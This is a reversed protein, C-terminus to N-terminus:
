GESRAQKTGSPKDLCSFNSTKKKTRRQAYACSQTHVCGWVHMHGQPNGLIYQLKEFGGISM